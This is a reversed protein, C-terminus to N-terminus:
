FVFMSLAVTLLDRLRYQSYVAKPCEAKIQVFESGCIQHLQEPVEVRHTEQTSRHRSTSRLASAYGLDVLDGVFNWAGVPVMLKLFDFFM